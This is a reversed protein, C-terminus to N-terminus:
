IHLEIELYEKFYRIDKKKYFLEYDLERAVKRICPFFVLTIMWSFIHYNFKSRNEFSVLFIFLPIYIAILLILEISLKIKKSTSHSKIRERFKWWMQEPTSKYQRENFLYECNNNRMNDYEERSERNYLVLTAEATELFAEKNDSMVYNIMSDIGILKINDFNDENESIGLIEYYNNM